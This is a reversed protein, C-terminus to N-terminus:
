SYFETSIHHFHDVRFLKLIKYEPITVNEQKEKRKTHVVVFVLLM